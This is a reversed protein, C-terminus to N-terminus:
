LYQKNVHASTSKHIQVIQIQIVEVMTKYIM